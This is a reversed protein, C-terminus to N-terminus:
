SKTKGQNLRTGSNEKEGNGTTELLKTYFNVVAPHARIQKAQLPASLRMGQLSRLRSLAVYAQGYEFTSELHLVARDLSMGQASHISLGWGLILPMQTRSSVVHEGVTVKFVAPQIQVPKTADLREFLVLPNKLTKTFGVVIGTLGNVLGRPLDITKCLCVLAREKLQLTDPARCSHQLMKVYGPQGKDIAKYTHREGKLKDLEGQNLADVDARHTFLQTDQGVMPSSGATSLLAQGEETLRGWRIEELVGALEAEKQRFPQKLLVTEKVISKWLPSQFCYIRKDNDGTRSVPPLQFFDGVFIVQVGGLPQEKETDRARNALKHIVNLLTLSLMSVEDVVLCQCKKWRSVAGPRSVIVEEVAADIDAETALHDVTGLGAFQNLTTGGIGVASLGTTATVFVKSPGHLKKMKTILTELLTTKGTGAGGSIFINKGQLTALEIARKQAATLKISGAAKSSLLPVLTLKEPTKKACSKKKQPTLGPSRAIFDDKSIHPNSTSGLFNNKKLAQSANKKEADVKEKEAKLTRVEDMAEEVRRIACDIVEKEDASFSVVCSRDELVLHCRCDDGDKAVITCRDSSYVDIRADSECTLKMKASKKDVSVRLISSDAERRERLKQTLPHFAEYLFNGKIHM